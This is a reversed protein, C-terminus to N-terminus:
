NNVSIIKFAAGTPDAVAAMRGYPSDEPESLVTGGLEGVRATAAETDEVGFYVSWHSPVGEPLFGSADMVGAQPQGGHVQNTYRFEDTNSQTETEWGFVQRYFNLSAAFDRTMLEHWVPAGAEDQLTFGTHKNAQWVGIASGAPDAVYAMTGQDSVEMPALLTSGGKAAAAESTSRADASKLYTSWGDPFGSEGSNFMMGAVVQGNKSFNVYHGYDEGMDQATWGFLQRYFETAKDTNSSALDIWCPAGDPTAERIPM